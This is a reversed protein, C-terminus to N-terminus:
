RGLDTSRWLPLLCCHFVLPGREITLSGISDEELLVEIPLELVSEVEGAHPQWQPEDEAVALWPSSRLTAPLFM